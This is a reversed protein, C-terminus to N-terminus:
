FRGEVKEGGGIRKSAEIELIEEFERKLKEVTARNEVDGESDELAEAIVIEYFGILPKAYQSASSESLYPKFMKYLSSTELAWNVGFEVAKIESDPMQGLEAYFPDLIGRVIKERERQPYISLYERIWQDLEEEKVNQESEELEDLRGIQELKNTWADAFKELHRAFQPSGEVLVPPKKGYDKGLLKKRRKAEGM